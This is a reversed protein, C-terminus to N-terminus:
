QYLGHSLFINEFRRIRRVVIGSMTGKMEFVDDSLFVIWELSIISVHHEYKRQHFRTVCTNM